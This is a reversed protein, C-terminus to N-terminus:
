SKSVEIPPGQKVFWRGYMEALPAASLGHALVSFLVTLGITTLVDQHAPALSTAEGALEEISLLAFILSALGRPGFWGIFLATQPRLGSGLLSVAVPVMRLATLSLLAFLVHEWGAVDIIMPGVAGGFVYWIGAGLGDTLSETVVETDEANALPTATAFAVGAVFAAVFGNAGLLETAMFAVFPLTLTALARGQNTTWDASDAFTMWRGGVIGIASGVLAAAVIDFVIGIPETAHGAAVALAAVVVPTVLGDNLGSEVNLSSRVLRPVAPNTTTPGGLGADTPALAAALFLLLGVELGPFLLWGLWYGAIVTLPLGVLLLRGVVGAEARLEPLGIKSADHFLLIVLVAEALPHTLSPPLAFAEDRLEVVLFGAIVFAIPAGIWIRELRRSTLAFTLLLGGFILIDVM